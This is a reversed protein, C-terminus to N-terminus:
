LKDVKFLIKKPLINVQHPLISKMMANMTVHEGITRVHHAVSQSTVGPNRGNKADTIIIVVFLIIWIKACM